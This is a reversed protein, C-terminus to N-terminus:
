PPASPLSLGPQVTGSRNRKRLATDQLGVPWVLGLRETPRLPTALSECSQLETATCNQHEATFNQDGGSLQYQRPDGLTIAQYLWRMVEGSVKRPRGSRRGEKLADYGGQRYRSVWHFVSRLPAGLVRAVVTPSEGERISDVARRRKEFRALSRPSESQARTKAAM